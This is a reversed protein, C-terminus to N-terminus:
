WLPRPMQWPWEGEPSPNDLGALYVRLGAVIWGRHKGQVFVGPLEMGPAHHGLGVARHLDLEVRALAHLHLRGVHQELEVLRLRGLQDGRRLRERAVDVEVEGPLERGLLLEAEGLQRAVVELGAGPDLLLGRRQEAQEVRRM